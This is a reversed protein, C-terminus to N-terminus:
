MKLPLYSFLNHCVYDGYDKDDDLSSNKMVDFISMKQM